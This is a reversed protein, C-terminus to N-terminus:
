GIRDKVVQLGRKGHLVAIVIVKNHEVMYIVKYPFRKVLHKRIGRYEIHHIEPNREMFRMGAEVQLLFDHGLGKRKDEYWLFADRLDKEAEPQIVVEYNM